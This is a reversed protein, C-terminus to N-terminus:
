VLGALNHLGAHVETHCRCCLLVCKDLEAKLEDNLETFGMRQAITFDKQSPDLHHFALAALCRDYRCIQCCGGKYAVAEAKLQSHASVKRARECMKCYSFKSRDANFKKKYFADLPKTVDCKPCHKLGNFSASLAAETSYRKGSKFPLCDLCFRRKQLNRRQGDIVISNPFSADCRGCSPM